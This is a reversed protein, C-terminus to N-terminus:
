DNEVTGIALVHEKQQLDDFNVGFHTVLWEQM